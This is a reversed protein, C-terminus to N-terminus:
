KGTEVHSICDGQNKYGLIQWNGNKCDSKAAAAFDYVVGNISVADLVVTQSGSTQAWGGDVVVSINSITGYGSGTAASIADAWTGYFPGGAQTSDVRAGSATDDLLNGTDGTSGSTYNPLDGLYVFINRTTTGNTVEVSFRPSGGGWTASLVDASLETLNAVPQGNLDNFSIYSFPNTSTSVLTAQGNAITTGGGTGSIAALATAPIALAVLCATLLRKM